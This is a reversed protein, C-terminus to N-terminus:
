MQEIFNQYDEVLLKLDEANKFHKITELAELVLNQMVSKTKKFGAFKITMELITKADKKTIRTKLLIRRLRSKIKPNEMAYFLPLPLCGHKIRRKLENPNFMDVVDDGLIWLMGICRGYNSLAKIESQSANGILAGIHFLAEIDAAKKRVIQLYHEPSVNIKGKLSVEQAQGDGLEFFAKELLLTIQIFKQMSIKDLLKYWSILGKFLLADGVLLAVDKDFKGFVTFRSNQKKQNDIIDDHIDMGGSMLVLPTAIEAIAEIDGGVAKSGLSILTPRVLFGKERYSLFYKLARQIEKCEIKEELIVKKVKELTAKGEKKFLEQLKSHLEMQRSQIFSEKKIQRNKEAIM